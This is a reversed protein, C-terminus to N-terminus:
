CLGEGGGVGAGERGWHATPLVQAPPMGVATRGDCFALVSVEGGDLFEEVVVEAGAVGFLDDKLMSRVAELAEEKTRPLLM